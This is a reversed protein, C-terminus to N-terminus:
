CLHVIQQSHAHSPLTSFIILIAVVSECSSIISSNNYCCSIGWAIGGEVGPYAVCNTAYAVGGEVVILDELFVFEEGICYFGYPVGDIIGNFLGDFDTLLLLEDCGVNALKNYSFM